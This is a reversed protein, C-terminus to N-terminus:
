LDDNHGVRPGLREGAPIRAGPAIRAKRGVLTIGSGEDAEKGGGGVVAGEEVCVGADLIARRVRAGRRVEVDDLLISDHVEAGEAVVVGPGLVSRVVRGGVQAGPSVLSDAIRASELIRAPLRQHGLTLIPWAPDDLCLPPEPALLDMHAQYYSEVTGVDKWYGELRHEWARGEAVLRPILEHGFDKLPSGEERDDGEGALAELTELLKRTGYVFVEATVLDSEPEEPKYAFGTVRGEGDVQVVGFRGAEQRPVRTTVMTVDAERERHARLVARFDLKYIHDASLVLLLEPDLEQIFRRHRWIADANGASFGGEDGQADGGEGGHTRQQYPPLVLLGGHTRDLDWPRGNSLHENLSHPEYQEVVWVDSIRSHVCNSLSFDILRYVGAFPLAPKAREETLVELRGGEGGALILALVEDRPMM